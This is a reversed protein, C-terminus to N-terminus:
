GKTLRELSPSATTIQDKAFRKNCFKRTNMEEDLHWFSFREMKYHEFNGQKWKVTIKAIQDKDVQKM